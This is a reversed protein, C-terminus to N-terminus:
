GTSATGSPVSHTGAVSTWREPTTTASRVRMADLRQDLAEADTALLRAEIDATGSGDEPKRVDAFRGRVSYETRRVAAPDYRDVWYDIENQTKEVSLSGWGVMHAAIEIDVKAIAEPDHILRTRSVVAAVMRFNIAGASFVEAVRPLRRHLADAILLQHAAAGLSISQAAAVSAAVADWNDRCWQEREASGDAALMRELEDAMALLRRACAANEVRAWAGVAASTPSTLAVELLSDFM